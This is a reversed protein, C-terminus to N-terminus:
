VQLLFDMVLGKEKFPFHGQYPMRLTMDQNEEVRLGEQLSTIWLRDKFSGGKM